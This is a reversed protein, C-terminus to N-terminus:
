ENAIREQRPGYVISLTLLALALVIVMPNTQWLSDLPASAFRWASALSGQALLHAFALSLTSILAVLTGLVLSLLVSLATVLLMPGFWLAGVAWFNGGFILTLLATAALSLAVDYGLILALRSLLVLRSSTPASLAM